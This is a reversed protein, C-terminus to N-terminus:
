GRGLLRAFVTCIHEDLIDEYHDYKEEYRKYTSWRM